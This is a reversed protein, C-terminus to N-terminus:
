DFNFPLRVDPKLGGAPSSAALSPEPPWVFPREGLLTEAIRDLAAFKGPALDEISKWLPVGGGHQPEEMFDLKPIARKFYLYTYRRAYELANAPLHPREMMAEIHRDYDEKSKPDWTFGKGYYHCYGGCIVPKNRCVLELGVTSVYPVGFAACRMLSYSDLESAPRVIRFNEPIRINRIREFIPEKTDPEGKMLEGPHIRVVGVHNPYKEFLRMTHAIWEVQSSFPFHARELSTDWTLNTFLPVIKKEPSIGLEAYLNEKDLAEGFKCPLTMDVQKERSQLYGTVWEEEEATLPQNKWEDWEKQFDLPVATQNKRLLCTSKNLGLEFCYFTIGRRKAVEVAARQSFNLGNWLVIADFKANSLLNELADIVLRSNKMMEVAIWRHRGNPDFTELRKLYRIASWKAIELLPYDKYHTKELDENGSSETAWLLARDADKPSWYKDMQHPKIHNQVLLNEYRQTCSGRCKSDRLGPPQSSNFADCLGFARPGCNVHFALHGRLRLTTSVATELTNQFPSLIQGFFLFNM